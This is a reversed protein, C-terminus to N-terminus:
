CGERNGDDPTSPKNKAAEYNGSSKNGQVKASEPVDHEFSHPLDSTHAIEPDADASSDATYDTGGTFEAPDLDKSDEEISDFQNALKDTKITEDSLKGITYDMYGKLGRKNHAANDQENEM